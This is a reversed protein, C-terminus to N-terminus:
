DLQDINITKGLTTLEYWTEFAVADYVTVMGKEFLEDLVRAPLKNGSKHYEVRLKPFKGTYKYIQDKDERMRRIAFKAPVSLKIAKKDTM